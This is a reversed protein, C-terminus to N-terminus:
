TRVVTITRSKGAATDLGEAVYFPGSRDATM